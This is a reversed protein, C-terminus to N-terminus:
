RSYSMKQATQYILAQLAEMRKAPYLRAAQKLYSVAEPLQQKNYHAVAQNFYSLGALQRLSIREDIAFAYDFTPTESQAELQSTSSPTQYRQIAEQMARRDTIFGHPDTTEILVSDSPPIGGLTSVDRDPMVPTSVDPTSVGQQPLYVMMYIHYPTERITYDIQLADLLLAYLATGTVCNYSGKEFLEFFNTEHRYRKLYKRHVKYFLHKVFAEERKYKAQKKQMQATFDNLEQWYAKVQAAPLNERAAMLLAFMETSVGTQTDRQLTDAPSRLALSGATFGTYVIFLSFIISFFFYKM